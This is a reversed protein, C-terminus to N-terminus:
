VTIEEGDIILQLDNDPADLVAFTQVYGPWSDSAQCVELTELYSRYVRRGYEIAGETLEYPVVIHPPKPEVAVICVREPDTGTARCIGDFYWALQAFWGMKRAQWPFRRPDSDTVKLDTLVGGNIDPTGACDRAGIQWQIPHEKVGTMALKAEPHSKVALAIDSAVAWEAATVIEQGDHEAKFDKWKNGRRAEPYVVFPRTAGLVMAHVLSGLRMAPTPLLRTELYHRYHAPSKGIWRLSSWHLRNM